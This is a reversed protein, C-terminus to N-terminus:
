YPYGQNRLFSVIKQKENRLDMLEQMINQELIRLDDRRQQTIGPEFNRFFMDGIEQSVQNKTPVSELTSNISNINTRLSDIAEALLKATGNYGGHPM